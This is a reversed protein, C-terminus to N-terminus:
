RRPTSAYFADAKDRRALTWNSNLPLYASIDERRVWEFAVIRNAIRWGRSARFEFDDIYRCAVTRRASSHSESEKLFADEAASEVEKFSLCYSETRARLFDDAVNITINTLVHLSSRVGKHKQKMWEVLEDASGNFPGHMDLAGDHYCSRVAEWDKRDV